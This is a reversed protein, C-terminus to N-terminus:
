TAEPEVFVKWKSPNGYEDYEYVDVFVRGEDLAGKDVEKLAKAIEESAKM